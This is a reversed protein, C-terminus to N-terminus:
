EIGTVVRGREICGYWEGSGALLPARLCSASGRPSGARPIRTGTVKVPEDIREFQDEGAPMYYALVYADNDEQFILVRGKETPVTGDEREFFLGFSRVGNAFPTDRLEVAKDRFLQELESGSVTAPFDTTPSCGGLVLLFLVLTCHFNKKM